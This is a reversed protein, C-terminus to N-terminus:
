VMELGAKFAPSSCKGWLVPLELFTGVFGAGPFDWLGQQSWSCSPPGQQGLCAPPAELGEKQKFSSCFEVSPQSQPTGARWSCKWVNIENIPKVGAWCQWWEWEAGAAQLPQNAVAFNFKQQEWLVEHALVPSIHLVAGTDTPAPPSNLASFCKSKLELCFSHSFLLISKGAWSSISFLGSM